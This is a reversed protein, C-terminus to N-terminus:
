NNLRRSDPDGRAFQEQVVQMLNKDTFKVEWGVVDNIVVVVTKHDLNDDAPPEFPINNAKLVAMAAELDECVFEAHDIKFIDDTDVKTGPRPEMLELINTDGLMNSFSLKRRLPFTGIRRANMYKETPEKSQPILEGRLREYSQPDTKIAFHDIPSAFLEAIGPYRDLFNQLCFTYADVVAQLRGHTLRERSIRGNEINGM